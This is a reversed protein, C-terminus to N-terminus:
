EESESHLAKVRLKLGELAVVKVPTGAAITGDAVANWYEGHAFVKGKPALDTIATGVEDMMGSAGSIVKGRRARVVLTVLFMTILAFPLAVAIATSFHIRVEPPGNVLLMAGLVMSVAGGIGLIGHSAIKAELVFLAVAFVLLAVGLWNIPLVSLASLGVLALIGGLVGPFILGPASFEVYIGLAGLVLLVFAINPDSVAMMINERLTPQYRSIQVDELHLTQESGDFRKVAKGNWQRFLDPENRAVTDILNQSLAEGDSFSQAAFVTKEALEVNRGRKSVMSRLYAATDQEVKKRMTEDMQQGLLVPSSAGTNTGPAMAAIDSAELIFFGASAARGGSPTVYAAVPIPSALIKETIQRTADLLGGPTNLEILILAAHENESKEIAHVVIETTIPGIVHDISVSVVRDAALCNVGALM